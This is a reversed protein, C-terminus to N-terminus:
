ESNCIETMDIFITNNDCKSLLLIAIKDGWNIKFHKDSQNILLIQVLKEEDNPLSINGVDIQNEILNEPISQVLGTYGFPFTLALDTSVFIKEGPPIVLDQASFLYYGHKITDPKIAKHSKRYVCMLYKEIGYMM